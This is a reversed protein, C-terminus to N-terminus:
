KLKELGTNFSGLNKKFCPYCEKYKEENEFLMCGCRLCKIRENSKESEFNM